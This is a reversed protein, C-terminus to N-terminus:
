GKSVPKTGKLKKRMEALPVIPGNEDIFEDIKDNVKTQKAAIKLDDEIISVAMSKEKQGFWSKLLDSSMYLFLLATVAITLSIM